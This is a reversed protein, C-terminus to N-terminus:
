SNLEKGGSFRNKVRRSFGTLLSYISPVVYLTLLTAVSLGGIVVIAMPSQVESGEGLGIAMPLMALITTLATMFIPRLRIPGAELIAERVTMGTSRLHNIYDVLVIANNVVIGALMIIGIITVVSINNGTIVLGLMVGIAAMPVTFMIVLPHLLSEFQSAMVMYVLVLALLLALALSTFSEQMQEFEGGYDLEYGSPLQLNESLRGQIEGMVEGLSRGYLSAGIQAYRVQNERLIEKPGEEVKFSAIDELPVLAGSSSSLLLERVQAPSDIDEEALKVTIDYEEGAIEYQTAVSGSIATNIAEGIQSVRLGYKSALTRNIEVQMEPRGESLSDEVERVGEVNRIEDSIQRALRELVVLDDGKVMISIPKGSGGMSMGETEINIEVGPISLDNRLAEIIEQTSRERENLDVLQLFFSATESESGGMGMMGSSGVNVLLNKIEPTDLVVKEIERAVRDTSELSSGLPLEASINIEGTDSEPIFETGIMPFLSVSGIFALLSIVVILWRHSLSWDLTSRYFSKVRGMRSSNQHREAEVKKVKLIKSSMVPILTLSVLLSALLSFAVTLSLERFLQSAMGEVFFVPLFVIVTTLTSALIAMGVELSGKHAAEKRSLGEVRYRFINELVVISNDVLMGVGLALGGLTMMNLTLDNFYLLMFTTIVSVPIATAIILTSRINRLFLFLVLVALVGGYIASTTVNSISDEIYEAQDMIPIIKIDNNIEGQLKVIEQNVLRSVNVTNADTQKQIMIGMSTKRNLRTMSEVEKFTDKVEAIDALPVNAGTATPIEVAKIEDVSKFKGTVRVLLKDSGRSVNGGSMNLNESMLTNKVSSFDINYNNLKNRNLSILIERELGGILSVSAVGELRELRPSVRDELLTKLEALDLDATVGLQMIPMMSPDFKIIIPDDVDDPLMGEVMDVNERLDMTATDMDTGWDFEAIIQSSGKSSSSSITKINTVTSVASEIPKTVMNEIEEPGVGSYSTIIAAGPYTIEPFLDINIMTFSVVGLLVALLVMMTTTVPRKIALDSLKM